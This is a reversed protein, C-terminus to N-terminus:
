HPDAGPGAPPSRRASRLHRVLLIDMAFLAAVIGALWAGAVLCVVAALAAVVVVAHHALRSDRVPRGSPHRMRHAFEPAEACLGHEIEELAQQERESLM